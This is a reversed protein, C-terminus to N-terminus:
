APESCPDTGATAASLPQPQQYPPPPYPQPQYPQQPPPYPQPQYAQPPYPQGYPPQQVPPAVQLYRRYNADPDFPKNAIAWILAAIWGIVTWGLFLNVLVIATANQVGRVLAIIAPLFYFAVGLLWEFGM